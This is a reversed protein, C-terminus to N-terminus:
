RRRHEYFARAVDPGAAPMQSNPVFKHGQLERRDVVGHAANHERLQRRGGIVQNDVPSVFSDIDSVVYLGANIKEPRYEEAPVWDHRSKDWIFRAM